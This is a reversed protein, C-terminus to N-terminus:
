AHIQELMLLVNLPIHWKPNFDFITILAKQLINVAKQNFLGFDYQQGIEFIKDTM